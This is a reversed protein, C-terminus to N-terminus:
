CEPGRVRKQRSRLLIGRLSLHLVVRGRSVGNISTIKSGIVFSDDITWGVPDM